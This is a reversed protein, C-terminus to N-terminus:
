PTYITDHLWCLGDGSADNDFFHQRIIVKWIMVSRGKHANWLSAPSGGEESFRPGMDLVETALRKAVIM